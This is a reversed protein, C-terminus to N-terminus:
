SPGSRYLCFSLCVSRFQVSGLQAPSPYEPSEWLEAVPVPLVGTSRTHTLSLSRTHLRSLAMSCDWCNLLSRLFNVENHLIGVSFSNRYMSTQIQETCQIHTAIVTCISSMLTTTFMPDIKCPGVTLSCLPKQQHAKYMEIVFQHSPPFMSIFVANMHQRPCWISKFSM